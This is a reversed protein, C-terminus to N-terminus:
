TTVSFASPSLYKSYMSLEPIAYKIFLVFFTDFTPILTSDKFFEKNSDSVQLALFNVKKITKLTNQVEETIVSDKLKLISAPLDISIFENNEKSEVIYKQLTPESNCSVIFLTLVVAIVFQFKNINM